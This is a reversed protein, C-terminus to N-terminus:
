VHARGIESMGTLTEGAFEPSADINVDQHVGNTLDHEIGSSKVYLGNSGIDLSNDDLSLSILKKNENTQVLTNASLTDKLIPVNYQTM